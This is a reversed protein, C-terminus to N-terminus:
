PAVTASEVRVPIAFTAGQCGDPASADLRVARPLRLDVTAGPDVRVPPEITLREDVVGVLEACGPADSRIEGAAAPQVRELVVAFGNPNQVRVLLDGEGGPYLRDATADDLPDLLALPEIGAVPATGEGGGPATFYGYARGGAAAGLVVVAAIAALKAPRM